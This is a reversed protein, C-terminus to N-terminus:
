PEQLFAPHYLLSQLTPMTAVVEVGRAAVDFKEALKASRHPDTGVTGM